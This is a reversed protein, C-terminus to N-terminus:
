LCEMNWQIKVCDLSSSDKGNKDLTHPSWTKLPCMSVSRLHPSGWLRVMLWLHLGWTGMFSFCAVWEVPNALLNWVICHFFRFFKKALGIGLAFSCVAVLFLLQIKRGYKIQGAKLPSSLPQMCFHSPENYNFFISILLHSVYQVPILVRQLGLSLINTKKSFSSIHWAQALSTGPTM